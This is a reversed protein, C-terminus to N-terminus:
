EPPVEPIEIRVHQTCGAAYNGIEQAFVDELKKQIKPLADKLEKEEADSVPELSAKSVHYLKGDAGRVLMKKKAM